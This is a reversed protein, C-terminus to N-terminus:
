QINSISPKAFPIIITTMSELGFKSALWLKGNMKHVAERAIYLGLGSGRSAQNARFFIEFVKDVYGEEIGVGNDEVVIKYNGTEKEMEITVRVFCTEKREDSYQVSNILINNLAISLRNKDLVPNSELSNEISLKIPNKAHNLVANDFVDKVLQNFDITMLNANDKVSVLYDSIDRTFKELRKMSSEIMGLYTPNGNDKSDMRILAIVGLVSSVPGRIHHSISYVFTDLQKYAEKLLQNQESLANKVNDLEKIRVELEATKQKVMKRLYRSILIFLLLLISTIISFWILIRVILKFKKKGGIEFWKSYIKTYTGDLKIQTLGKNIKDLMEPNGKQVHFALQLPFIPAGSVTLGNLNNDIIYNNSSYQSVIACDYKGQNLLQLAEPESAVPIITAGHPNELFYEHVYTGKEVMVQLGSIKDLSLKPLTQKRTVFENYVVAHTSAFDVYKKREENFYMDGIDVGKGKKIKELVAGWEELQFAVEFDMREGIARILDVNFGDPEGKENIFEFPKFNNSGYILKQKKSKAPTDSTCANLFFLGLLLLIALSQFDVKLRNYMKAM